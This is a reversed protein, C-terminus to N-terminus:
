LLDTSVKNIPNPPQFISEKGAAKSDVILKEEGYIFFPNVYGMFVVPVTLGKSRAEAVLEICKATTMGNELAVSFNVLCQSVM